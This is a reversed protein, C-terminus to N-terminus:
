PKDNMPNFGFELSIDHACRKVMEGFQEIRDPTIRVVAGSISVAAAPRSSHDFILAAVCRVGAEFEENDM